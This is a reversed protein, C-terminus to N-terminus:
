CARRGFRAARSGEGGLDAEGDQLALAKAAAVATAWAACWPNHEVVVVDHRLRGAPGRGLVVQARCALLAVQM